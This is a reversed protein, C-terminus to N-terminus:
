VCYGSQRMQASDPLRDIEDAYKGRHGSNDIRGSRITLTAKKVNWECHRVNLFRLVNTLTSEPVGILDEYSVKLFRGKPLIGEYAAACKLYQEWLDFCKEFRLVSQNYDNSEPLRKSERRHLSIAVDIGNRVMHVVRANPFLRLWLPLTCTNRPDKWGWQLAAAKPKLGIKQRWSFFSSSEKKEFLYTEAWQADAALVDPDRWATRLPQINAWTAGHRQLLSRNARQFVVSESNVTLTAGMHVGNKMLLRTLLSTGSRHMGIVITPSSNKLLTETFM